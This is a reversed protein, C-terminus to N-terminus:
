AVVTAGPRQGPGRLIKQLIFNVECIVAFPDRWVPARFWAPPPVVEGQATM